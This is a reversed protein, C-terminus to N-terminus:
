GYLISTVVRRIQRCYDLRDIFLQAITRFDISHLSSQDLRYYVLLFFDFAAHATLFGGKGKGKGKGRFACM